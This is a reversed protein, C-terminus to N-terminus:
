ERSQLPLRAIPIFDIPFQYYTDLLSIFALQITYLHKFYFLTEIAQFGQQYQAGKNARSM